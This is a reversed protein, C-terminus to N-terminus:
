VMSATYSIGCLRSQPYASIATGKCRSVHFILIDTVNFFYLTMFRIHLIRICSQQQLWIIIAM